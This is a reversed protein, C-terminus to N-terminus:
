NIAYAYVFRRVFGNDDCTTLILKNQGMNRFGADAAPCTYFASGCPYVRQGTVRYRFIGSCAKSKMVLTIVDGAHLQWLRGFPQGHTAHHAAIAVTERDCPLATGGYHMPYYGPELEGTDQQVQLNVGIVPIRITGIMGGQQRSSEAGAGAAAVLAAVLVCILILRRM